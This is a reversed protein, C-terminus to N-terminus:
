KKREKEQELSSPGTKEIVEMSAMEEEPQVFGPGEAEGLAQLDRM